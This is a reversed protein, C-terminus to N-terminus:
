PHRHRRGPRRRPRAIVPHDPVGAVVRVEILAADADVRDFDVAAVAGLDEGRGGITSPHAEITEVRGREREIDAGALVEHEVGVAAVVGEGGGAVERRQDLDGDVAAGAIVRQKAAVANVQQEATVAIVEDVALLAIVHRQM